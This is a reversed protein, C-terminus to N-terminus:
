RKVSYRYYFPGETAAGCCSAVAKAASDCDPFLCLATVRNRCSFVKSVLKRIIQPSIGLKGINQTNKKELLFNM